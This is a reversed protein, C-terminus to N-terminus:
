FILIYLCFISKRHFIVLCCIICTIVFVGFATGVFVGSDSNEIIVHDTIRQCSPEALFCGYSISTCDPKEFLKNSMYSTNPCGSLFGSCNYPYLASDLKRLYLCIGEQILIFTYTYCFELLETINENPLCVYGNDKTCNIASSRQNWETKNRPCHKTSYVPFKYGDLKRCEFQLLCFSLVIGCLAFCLRTHVPLEM